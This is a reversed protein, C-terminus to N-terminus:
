QCTLTPLKKVSLTMTWLSDLFCCKVTVIRGEVECEFTQWTGDQIPEVGLRALVHTAIIDQQLECDKELADRAIRKSVLNDLAICLNM